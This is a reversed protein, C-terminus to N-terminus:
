EKKEETVVSEAEPEAESSSESSQDSAQEEAVTSNDISPQHVRQEILQESVRWVQEILDENQAVTSPKTMRTQSFYEGRHENLTPDANAWLIYRSIDEASKMIRLKKLWDVAQPNEFRSYFGTMAAGPHIANVAIPSKMVDLARQLGVTFLIQALKAFTYSHTAYSKILINDESSQLLSDM